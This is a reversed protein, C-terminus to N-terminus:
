LSVELKGEKDTWLMYIKVLAFLAGMLGGIPICAYVFAFSIRTTPTIQKVAKLTLQLGYYFLCSFFFLQVTNHFLRLIKYGNKYKRKIFDSFITISTYGESKSVAATGLMVIAVHLYRMTEETWTIPLNLFLLYRGLVQYIGLLTVIATISVLFLQYMKELRDLFIRM